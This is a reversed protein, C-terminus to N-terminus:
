EKGTVAGVIGVLYALAELGGGQIGVGPFLSPCQGFACLGVLIAGYINLDVVCM